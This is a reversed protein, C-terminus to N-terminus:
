SSHMRARLEVVAEEKLLEADEVRRAVLARRLARARTPTTAM